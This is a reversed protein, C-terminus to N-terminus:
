YCLLTSILYECDFLKTAAFEVTGSVCVIDIKKHKKFLHDLHIQIAEITAGSSIFDDVVVLISHYFNHLPERYHTKEGDKKVSYIYVNKMGYSTLHYAVMGAIIAGSSGRCVLTVPEDYSASYYDLITLYIYNAMEEIISGNRDLNNGVPYYITNKILNLPIM